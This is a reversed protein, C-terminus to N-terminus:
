LVPASLTGLPLQRYDPEINGRSWKKVDGRYIKLGFTTPQLTCYEHSYFTSHHGYPQLRHHSCLAANTVTSPAITVTQSWDIAVVSHQIRSQQLYQSSRRAAILLLALVSLKYLSKQHGPFDGIKWASNLVGTTCAGYNPVARHASQTVGGLHYQFTVPVYEFQFAHVCRVTERYKETLEGYESSRDGTTLSVVAATRVSSSRSALMSSCSRSALTRSRRANMVSRPNEYAPKSSLCSSSARASSAAAACCFLYMACILWCM